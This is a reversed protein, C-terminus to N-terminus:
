LDVDESIYYGAGSAECYNVIKKKLNADRTYELLYAEMGAGMAKSIYKQYELSESVIQAGFTGRGDYDTILSFAEEQTVGHAVRAKQSISRLMYEMGGNIMIYGHPYLAQLIRTIGKYAADSPYEEYVDINDAWIGDYGANLLAMGRNILWDQVAPECVDLYREHEWDDLRRLTYPELQKYYSREDSVSGVSLYALVTYGASKLTQVEKATYDEPEIALLGSGKEAKAKTTLCVKYASQKKVFTRTIGLSTTLKATNGQFDVNIEGDEYARAVFAGIDRLLNYTSTRGNGKGEPHEYQTFAFLVGKIAKVFAEKIGGRDGHWFFKFGDCSFDVGSAMMQLIGEASLDGGILIRWSGAFVKYVMSMNNIFHHGDKKKLKDADAQFLCQIRLSGVTFSDGMKLWTVPVGKKKCHDAISDMREAYSKQYKRIGSQDPLYVHKVPLSDVMIKVNGTHDSHPHTIIINIEDLNLAKLKSVALSGYMGTDFITGKKGEIFITEDGFYDPDNEWFRPAYLRVRNNTSDDEKSDKPYKPRIRGKVTGLNSRHRKHVGGNYNGSVFDKGGLAFESHNPNGKSDQYVVIDGYIIDSTGAKWTGKKIANDMLTKAQKGYGILDLYGAKYFMLQLFETCWANSDDIKSHKTGYKKNYWDIFANYERIFDKHATKSDIYPKMLNYVRQPGRDTSAKKKGYMEDIKQQVADADYGLTKLANWRIEKKGFDDALVWEIVKDMSQKPTRLYASISSALIFGYKGGVCCYAWKKDTIIYDCITIRTLGTVPSFSCPEGSVKPQRRATVKMGNKLIGTFIAKKSPTGTGSIEYGGATKTAKETTAKTEPTKSEGTTDDVFKPCIFGRIYRGNIRMVRRGVAEDKNCEMVTFTGAQEDVDIVIGIHDATGTNDGYGSDDWDYMVAEALRPVHNDAEEWIGMKKALEINRPCGCEIPFLEPAGAQIYAGSAGTACWEDSYKVTYNLTGTKVAAPLYKNYIDIIIKFKGNRESWGEWSCVQQVIDTRTVGSSVAQTGNSGDLAIYCRSIDVRGNIGPISGSNTYQWLAVDHGSYTLQDAWQAVWRQCYPELDADNLNGSFWSKSAYVGCKYGAEHLRRLIVNLYKTRDAKGLKDSRGSRDQYVVESDLWIPGCLKVKKAASIIFNAEAEAEATTISCPFFYIMTPIGHKQCAAMYELYRPDYTITGTHAGRYGLRLIVADVAAKVKLWNDVLNFKSLDVIKSM